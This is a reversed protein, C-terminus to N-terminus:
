LLFDRINTLWDQEFRSESFKGQVWKRANTRIEDLQTPSMRLLVHEFIGAYEEATRALFGVGPSEGPQQDDCVSRAPGIIDLQPGGSDHAVTILGAAM